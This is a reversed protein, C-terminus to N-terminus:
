VIYEKFLKKFKERQNVTKDNGTNGKHKDLLGPFGQDEWECWEKVQPCGRNISFFERCFNFLGKREEETGKVLVETIAAKVGGTGMRTTIAADVGLTDLALVDVKFTQYFDEVQADTKYGQRSLATKWSTTMLRSSVLLNAALLATQQIDANSAEQGKMVTLHYSVMMQELNDFEIFKPNVVAPPNLFGNNKFNDQRANGSLVYKVGNLIGVIFTDGVPNWERGFLNASRVTIPRNYLFSNINKFDVLDIQQNFDRM